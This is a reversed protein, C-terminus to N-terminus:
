EDSNINIIDSDTINSHDINSHRSISSAIHSNFYDTNSSVSNRNGTSSAYQDYFVQLNIVVSNFHSIITITFVQRVVILCCEFYRFSVRIVNFNNILAISSNNYSNRTFITIYGNFNSIFSIINSNNITSCNYGQIIYSRAFMFDFHNVGTIFVM